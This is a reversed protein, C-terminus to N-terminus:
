GESIPHATVRTQAANLVRKRLAKDQALEIIKDSWATPVTPMLWGDVNNRVFGRYPPVDCFLGVAGLRTFDYFRTPSRHANFKTPRLPALGIHHPLASLTHRYTPWPMPHLIITRPVDSFLRRVQKDGMIMFLTNECQAQTNAVVAHLWEIEQRHTSPNGHYFYSVLDPKDEVGYGSPTLVKPKAHAYRAALSPTSVWLEDILPELQALFRGFRHWLMNRYARPLQSDFLNHPLDDDMFFAVRGGNRQHQELLAVLYDSLYRVVVLIQNPDYEPAFVGQKTDVYGVIPCGLVTPQHFFYDMTASEGWHFVVAPSPISESPHSREPLAFFKSPNQSRFRTFIWNLYNELNM